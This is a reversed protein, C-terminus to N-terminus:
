TLNAPLARVRGGKGHTCRSRRGRGAARARAPCNGSRCWDEPRTSRRLSRPSDTSCRPVKPEAGAVVWSVGPQSRILGKAALVALVDLARKVTTRAVSHEEVLAAESPLSTM